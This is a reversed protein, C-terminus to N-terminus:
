NVNPAPVTSGDDDHLARGTGFTQALELEGEIVIFVEDTDPHDHWVFDGEVRVLKFQVDNMEAVVKPQWQDQFLDFKGRLDIPEPSM